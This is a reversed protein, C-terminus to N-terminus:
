FDRQYVWDSPGKVEVRVLGLDTFFKVERVFTIRVRVANATKPLPGDALFRYLMGRIFKNFNVKKHPALAFAVVEDEPFLKIYGLIFEGNQAVWFTEKEHAFYDSPISLTVKHARVSFAKAVTMLPENDADARPRFVTGELVEKVERWQQLQRDLGRRLDEIEGMLRPIATKHAPTFVRAFEGLCGKYFVLLDYLTKLEEGVSEIHPLPYFRRVGHDFRERCDALQQTMAEATDTELRKGLTTENRERLLKKEMARQQEQELVRTRVAGLQDKWSLGTDDAM